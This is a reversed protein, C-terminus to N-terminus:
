TMRLSLDRFLIRSYILILGSHPIHSLFLGIPPADEPCIAAFAVVDGVL